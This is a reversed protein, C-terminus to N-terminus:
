GGSLEQKIGNILKEAKVIEHIKKDGSRLWKIFLKEHKEVM